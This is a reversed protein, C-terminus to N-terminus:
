KTVVIKTNSIYVKVNQRVMRPLQNVNITGELLKNNDFSVGDLNEPLSSLDINGKFENQSFYLGKLTNPLAGLDLKGTLLNDSVDLYLLGVPLQTLCIEGSLKNGEMWAATLFKPLKTLDPNGTFLNGGLFLDTLKVLPFLDSLIAEGSIRNEEIDFSTTSSPIYVFNMIGNLTRSNWQIETVKEDSNCKIGDWKCAPIESSWSEHRTHLGSILRELDMEQPVNLGRVKSPRREAFQYDM